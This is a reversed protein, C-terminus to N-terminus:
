DQAPSTVTRRRRGARPSLTPILPEKWSRLGRLSGRVWVADVIREPRGGRAPALRVHPHREIRNSVTLVTDANERRKEGPSHM